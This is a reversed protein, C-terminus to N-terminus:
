DEIIAGWDTLLQQAWSPFTEILPIPVSTSIIDDSMPPPLESIDWTPKNYEERHMTQTNSLFTSWRLARGGMRSRGLVKHVKDFPIILGDDVVEIVNATTSGDNKENPSQIRDRLLSAHNCHKDLLSVDLIVNTPKLEQVTDAMTSIMDDDNGGIIPILNVKQGLEDLSCNLAHLAAYGFAHVPKLEHISTSSSIAYDYPWAVCITLGDHGLEAARTLAISDRVRLRNTSLWLLATQRRRDQQTEKGDDDANNSTLARRTLIRDYGRFYRNNSVGWGSKLSFQHTSHRIPSTLLATSQSLMLLIFAMMM